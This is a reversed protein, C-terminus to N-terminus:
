SSGGLQAAQETGPQHPDYPKVADKKHFVIPHEEFDILRKMRDIKPQVTQPGFKSEGLLLVTENEYGDPEFSVPSMDSDDPLNVDFDFRQNEDIDIHPPRLIGKVSIPAQGGAFQARGHVHWVRYTTIWQPTVYEFVFVTLIFFCAFAGGIEVKLGKLFGAPVEGSLKGSSKVITFLILTAALPLAFSLVYLVIKEM